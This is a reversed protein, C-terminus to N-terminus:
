SRVVQGDENPPLAAVLRSGLFMLLSAILLSTGLMAWGLDFGLREAVIGFTGPGAMAGAFLGSQTIGTAAAPAERNAAVVSYSFLGNWGWGAGFVLVIAPATLLTSGTALLLYGVGGAVMLISAAAFFLPRFSRDAWWGLAVRALVGVVSGSMLVIGALGEATGRDVLSEVLFVGLSNSAFNAFFAGAALVLLVRRAGPRLSPVVLPRGREVPRGGIPPALPILTLSLVAAAVFAWRWGLTLAFVPVALGGLLSTMPVASQKLGFAFGQRGPDIGRALSLNSAPQAAANAFAAVVMGVLLWAWTPSAAITALALAAVAGVLVMTRQTGLRETLRGAPTSGLASLAFFVTVLLGLRSESFGLDGRVQVAVGGLLFAPLVSVLTALIAASIARTSSVSAGPRDSGGPGGTV